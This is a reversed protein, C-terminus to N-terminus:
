GHVLWLALLFFTRILCGAVVIIIVHLYTSVYVRGFLSIIINLYLLMLFCFNTFPRSPQAHTPSLLSFCLVCHRCFRYLHYLPYRSPENINLYMFITRNRPGRLTLATSIGVFRDEYM